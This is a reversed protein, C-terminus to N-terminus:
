VLRLILYLVAVGIAVFGLGMKAPALKAAMNDLKADVDSNVVSKIMPLAFLFGLGVLTLAGVMGVMWYFPVYKLGTGINLLGNIAGYLGWILAVVGIWGEFKQIPELFKAADANKSQIFGAVGLVGVLLLLIITVFAM